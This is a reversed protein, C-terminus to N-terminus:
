LFLDYRVIYLWIYKSIRLSFQNRHSSNEERGKVASAPAKALLKPELWKHCWSIPLLSVQMLNVETFCICDNFSIVVVSLQFPLTLSLFLVSLVSTRTCSEHKLHEGHWWTAMWKWWCSHMNSQLLRLFYAKENIRWVNTTSMTTSRCDVHIIYIIM